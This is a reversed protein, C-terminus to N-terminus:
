SPCSEAEDAHDPGGATPRTRNSHSVKRQAARRKQRWRIFGTVYLLPCALGALFVLIRGTWGFAQGSHLPWQWQLFVEGGTGTTPDEVHRIEGSYQDVTVCRRDVFRNLEYLGHKCVAYASEPTPAGNFWALRGGPYRAEVIRVAEALGIPPRGAPPESRVANRDTVPSFLRVVALVRDPLNMHIGSFLVALLVLSTYFGSTKHVDFNLREAGARRKLTLAQLWKGTLPWWVILGTLVAILLLAAALGVAIVGSEKLLLAYHLQFVLPMFARPLWDGARQVLRTGTAQATYPNVFAQYQDPAERDSPVAYFLQFAAREYRPYYGFTLKAGAPLVAEAAATIENLPRFAAEGGPRTEVVRLGPNLWEDIEQWFVLLSGTLGVPALVAGAILGLWLHVALWWQRRAKRRAPGKAGTTGNPAPRPASRYAMFEM